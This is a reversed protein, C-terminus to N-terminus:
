QEGGEAASAGRGAHKFYQVQWENVAKEHCSLTPCFIHQGNNNSVFFFDPCEVPQAVAKLAARGPNAIPGPPLGKRKYTNYPHDFTRLHSRKINGDFSPDALTAAYIVTPDTDLSWAPKARLRNYFVCAVHPREDPAGTEKEVISALTVFERVAFSLPGTGAATVVRYSKHFLDFMAAFIADAAIGRAFTYTDPFLYGECSPGPIDHKKLFAADDCLRDFEPASMWRGAALAERVQWRNQGEIVQFQETKVKGSTLRDLLSHATDDPTVEYEGARVQTLSTVRGYWYLRRPSKAVGLQALEDVVSRLTAGRKVMVTIPKDVALRTGGYSRAHAFLGLAGLGTLAALAVVVIVIKKV